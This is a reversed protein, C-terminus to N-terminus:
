FLTGPVNERSHGILTAVDYNMMTVRCTYDRANGANRRSLKASLRGGFSQRSSQWNIDHIRKKEVGWANVM